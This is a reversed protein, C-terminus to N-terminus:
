ALDRVVGRGRLSHTRNLRGGIPLGGSTDLRSARYVALAAAVAQDGHSGDKMVPIDIKVHGAMERVAQVQGLQQIIPHDDELLGLSVSDELFLRQVELWYDKPMSPADIIAIGKLGERAAEIYHLDAMYSDIGHQKGIRGAAQFVESPKLFANPKPRWAEFAELSISGLPGKGLLDPDPGRLAAIAVASANKRFAWDAGGTRHLVPGVHARCARHLLAPSLLFDTDSDVPIAAYARMFEADNIALM